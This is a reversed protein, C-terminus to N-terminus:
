RKYKRGMFGYRNKWFLILHKNSIYILIYSNSEQIYNYYEIPNTDPVLKAKGKANKKM